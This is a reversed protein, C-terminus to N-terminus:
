FILLMEGASPTASVIPPYETASAYPARFEFEIAKANLTKALPPNVTEVQANM